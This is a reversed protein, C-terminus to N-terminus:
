NYIGAPKVKPIAGQDPKVDSLNFLMQSFSIILSLSTLMGINVIDQTSQCIYSKQDVHFVNVKYLVNHSLTQWHSAVPRHNEGPVGIEDTASELTPKPPKLGEGDFFDLVYILMCKELSNLTVIHSKISHNRDTHHFYFLICILKKTNSNSLGKLESRV